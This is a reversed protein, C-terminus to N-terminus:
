TLSLLWFSCEPRESSYFACLYLGIAAAKGSSNDPFQLLTSFDINFDISQYSLCADQVIASGLAIGCHDFM